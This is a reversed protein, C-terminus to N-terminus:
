SSGDDVSGIGIGKSLWYSRRKDQQATKSDREEEGAGDSEYEELSEGEDTINNVILEGEEEEEDDTIFVTHMDRAQGMKRRKNPPQDRAGIDYRGEEDDSQHRHGNPSQLSRIEEIDSDMDMDAKEYIEEVEQASRKIRSGRHRSAEPQHIVLNKKPEVGLLRHLIRDDYVEQIM